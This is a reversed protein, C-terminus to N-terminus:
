LSLLDKKIDDAVKKLEQNADIVCIREPFMKALELYYKRVNYHFEMGEEDLRNTERNNSHIRALGIKPDLDLLYTRIPMFDGIAFQNLQMIRDMGLGRVAGQYVVSCDVFRDYIVFKGENLLEFTKERLLQARSAAFLLAETEGFMKTNKKSLLVERIQESIDTGGPERIKVVYLNFEEKLEKMLLEIVSTKGVGEGGEFSIAKGALYISM